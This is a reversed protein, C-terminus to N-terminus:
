FFERGESHADINKECEFTGVLETKNQKIMSELKQKLM